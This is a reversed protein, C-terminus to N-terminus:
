HLCDAVNLKRKHYRKYTINFITDQLNLSHSVSCMLHGTLSHHCCGLLSCDVLLSHLCYGPLLSHPLCHSHCPILNYDITQHLDQSTMRHHDLCDLYYWRSHTEHEADIFRTEHANITPNNLKCSIDCWHIAHQWQGIAAFLCGAVTPHDVFTHCFKKRHNRNVFALKEQWLLTTWFHLKM